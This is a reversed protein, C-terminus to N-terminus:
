LLNNINKKSSEKIAAEISSQNLKDGSIEEIIKSAIEGSIKSIDNISNKKLNLIEKQANEIEKEIEKEIINRKNKIENKLKNRNELLIKQVEKKGNKIIDQYELLKKDALDKLSKAEDLDDKIKNDRDDLNNKIRPVFFKSITLYLLTFVLVLWFAQSYWYKPDLQPMGAEAGFLSVESAILAGLMVLFTKM